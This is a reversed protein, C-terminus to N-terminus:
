QPPRLIENLTPGSPASKGRGWRRVRTGLEGRTRRFYRRVTETWVPWRIRAWASRAAQADAEAPRPSYREAVYQATITEVGAQVAPVAESVVAAREHPTLAEALRLGM